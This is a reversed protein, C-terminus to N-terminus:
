LETKSPDERDFSRFRRLDARAQEGSGSLRIQELLRDTQQPEVCIILVDAFAAAEANNDTVSCGNEKWARDPM